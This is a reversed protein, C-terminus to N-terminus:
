EAALEYWLTRHEPGIRLTGNEFPVPARRQGREDLAWAKLKASAPFQITAAIGEVLSPAKGWDRSVTTKEANKWQMGTNEAIGTATVLIRRATRFDEGELATLQICAWGQATEGPTIAVDGLAVTEGRKLAGILAKSRPVNVSVSRREM